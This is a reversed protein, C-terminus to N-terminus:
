FQLSCSLLKSQRCDRVEVGDFGAARANRAAAAYAEVIAPIESEDLARPTPYKFPGGQLNVFPFIPPV